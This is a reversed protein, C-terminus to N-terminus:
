KRFRRAVRDAKELATAITIAVGLGAFLLVAELTTFHMKPPKM